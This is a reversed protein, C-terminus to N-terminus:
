RVALVKPQQAAQEAQQTQAQLNKVDYRERWALRKENSQLAFEQKAAQYAEFIPLGVNARYIDALVEINEWKEKRNVCPRQQEKM